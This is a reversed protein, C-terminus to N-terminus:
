LAAYYIQGLEGPRSVCGSSGAFQHPYRSFQALGTCRVPRRRSDLNRQTDV